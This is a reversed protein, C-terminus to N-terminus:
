YIHDTCIQAPLTRAQTGLTVARLVRSEPNKYGCGMFGDGDEKPTIICIGPWERRSEFMDRKRSFIIKVTESTRKVHLKGLCMLKEHLSKCFVGEPVGLLRVIRLFCM